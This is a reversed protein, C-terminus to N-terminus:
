LGFYSYIVYALYLSLFIFGTKKGLIYPRFYINGIKLGKRIKLTFLITVFSMFILSELYLDISTPFEDGKVLLIVAFIGVINYVNSGLITGVAMKTQQKIAAVIGTALEPLSTGFAVLTFGIIAEPIEYSVALNKSGLVFYYSGGILLVLGILLFLYSVIQSYSKINEVDEQINDKQILFEYVLYLLLMCILGIGVYITVPSSSQTETLIVFTGVVIITIILVWLTVNKQEKQNGFEIDKFISILGLILLINAINSGIINGLAISVSDIIPYMIASLTASLEPVSTGFAVITFGIFYGSVKYTKALSTAGRVILEAGIGLAIIGFIIQIITLDTTM